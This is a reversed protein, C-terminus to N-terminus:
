NLGNKEFRILLYRNFRNDFPSEKSVNKRDLKWIPRFLDFFFRKINFYTLKVSDIPCSNIARWTSIVKLVITRIWFDDFPECFKFKKKCDISGPTWFLKSFVFRIVLNWFHDVKWTTQSCKNVLNLTSVPNTPMTASFHM